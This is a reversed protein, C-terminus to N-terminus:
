NEIHERACVEFAVWSAINELERHARHEGPGSDELVINTHLIMGIVTRLRTRRNKQTLYM